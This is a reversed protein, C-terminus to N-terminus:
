VISVCVIGGWKENRGTFKPRKRRIEPNFFKFPERAPRPEPPNTCVKAQEGSGSVQFPGLPTSMLCGPPWEDVKLAAVAGFAKPLASCGQRTSGFLHARPASETQPSRKHNSEPRM